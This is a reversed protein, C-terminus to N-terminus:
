PEKSGGAGHLTQVHLEARMSRHVVKSGNRETEDASSWVLPAVASQKPLIPFSVVGYKPAHGVSLEEVHGRETRNCVSRMWRWGFLSRWHEVCETAFVVVWRTWSLSSGGDWKFKMNQSLNRRSSCCTLNFAFRSSLLRHLYLCCDVQPQKQKQTRTLQLENKITESTGTFNLHDLHDGWWWLSTRYQVSNKIIRREM